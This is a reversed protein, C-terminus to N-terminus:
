ARGREQDMAWTSHQVTGIEGEALGSNGPLCYCLRLQRAYSIPLAFSWIFYYSFLWLQLVTIIINIAYFYNTEVIINGLSADWIRRQTASGNNVLATTLQSGGGEGRGGGSLLRSHFSFFSGSARYESPSGVSGFYVEEEDCRRNGLEDRGRPATEINSCKKGSPILVFFFLCPHLSLDYPQPCNALDYPYPISSHPDLGSKLM